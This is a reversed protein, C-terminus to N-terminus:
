RNKRSQFSFQFVKKRFILIAVLIGFLFLLSNWPIKKEKLHDLVPNKLTYPYNSEANFLFIGSVIVSQRDWSPDFKKSLLIQKKRNKKILCCSPLNPEDALIWNENDQYLFGIICIEKQHIKEENETLPFNEFTLHILLLICLFFM